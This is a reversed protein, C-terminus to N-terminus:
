DGLLYCSKSFGVLPDGFEENTCWVGDTFSKVVTAQGLVGYEVQRTGTFPCFDNEVACFVQSPDSVIVVTIDPVQLDVKQDVDVYGCAGISPAKGYWEHCPTDFWGAELNRPQGVSSGPLPCHHGVILEGAERAPSDPQLIFIMSGDSSGACYPNGTWVYGDKMWTENTGEALCAGSIWHCEQSAVFAAFLLLTLM